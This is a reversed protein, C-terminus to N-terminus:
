SITFFTKLVTLNNGEYISLNSELLLLFGFKHFFGAGSKDPCRSVISLYPVIGYSVPSITVM